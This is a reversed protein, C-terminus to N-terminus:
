LDGYTTREAAWNRYFFVWARVAVLARGKWGWLFKEYVGAVFVVVDRAIRVPVRREHEGGGRATHVHAPQQDLPERAAHRILILQPHISYTNRGGSECKERRLKELAATAEEDVAEEEMGEESRM